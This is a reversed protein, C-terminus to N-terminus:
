LCDGYPLSKIYDEMYQWDISGDNDIPLCINIKLIEEPNASRGYSFKYMNKKLLTIIYMANYKNITVEGKPTFIRSRDMVWCKEHQYTAFMGCAEGGCVISNAPCNFDKYYGDVSNNTTRSTVVGYINDVTKKDSYDRDKVIRKGRKVDFLDGILFDKYEPKNLDIKNVNTIPRSDTYIDQIYKDMYEFDIKEEGNVPLSVTLNVLRENSLKMGYSYYQAAFSLCKSIFLGSYKNLTYDFKPTLITVDSSAIFEEEQWYSCGVSGNNNITIVQSFVTEGDNPIVKKNLGNNTESASICNIGNVDEVRERIKTANGRKVDFLDGIKFEKFEM